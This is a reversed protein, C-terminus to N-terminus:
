RGPPRSLVRDLVQELMGLDIPKVLHEAFGAEVSRQRHMDSGHATVAVVPLDGRTAHQLRKALEHGDMVPLGIDILVVEPQFSHAVTLAVPGGHALAVEYGRLELATKLLRAADDNDEVLLVRARCPAATPTDTTGESM